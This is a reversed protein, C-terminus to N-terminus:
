LAHPAPPHRMRSVIQRIFSVVTRTVGAAITGIMLDNLGFARIRIMIIDDSLESMRVDDRLLRLVSLHHRIALHGPEEIIQNGSVGAQALPQASLPVGVKTACTNCGRGTLVSYGIINLAEALVGPRTVPATGIVTNEWVTFAFDNGFM